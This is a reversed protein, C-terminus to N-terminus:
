PRRVGVAGRDAHSGESVKLCGRGGSGGGSGGGTVFEWLDETSSFMRDPLLAAGPRHRSRLAGAPPDTLADASTWADWGAQTQRQRRLGQRYLRYAITLAAGLAGVAALPAVGSGVEGVAAFSLGMGAGLRFFPQLM